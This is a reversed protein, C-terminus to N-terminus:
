NSVREWYNAYEWYCLFPIRHAVSCVKNSRQHFLGQPPGKCKKWTQHGLLKYNSSKIRAWFKRRYPGRPELWIEDWTAFCSKNEVFEFVLVKKSPVCVKYRLKSIDLLIQFKSFFNKQKRGEELTEEQTLVTYVTIHRWVQCLGAIQKLTPERDTGM